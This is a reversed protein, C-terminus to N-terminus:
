PAADESEERPTIEPKKRPSFLGRVRRTGAEGPPGSLLKSIGTNL